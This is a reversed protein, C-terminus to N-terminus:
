LEWSRSSTSLPVCQAGAGGKSVTSIKEGRAAVHALDLIEELNDNAAGTVNCRVVLTRIREEQNFFGIM